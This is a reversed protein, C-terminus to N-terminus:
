FHKIDESERRLDVNHQSERRYQKPTLGLHKKFTTSFYQQSNMGIYHPLDTISIDTRKLLEKAKKMRHTVLYENISQSMSEKFVRHLYGPHLHVSDAIEKIRVDRDYNQHIYEIAKKVYAHHDPEKDRQKALEAVRILLQSMLLQVMFDSETEARDLELILTKLCHHIDNSDRLVMYPNQDATTQMLAKNEKCIHAFSPFSTNLSQFIFEINAMRCREDTQVILKHVVYSDIFIFQGKKLRHVDDDIEVSCSGSIVYMIEIAEHAHPVMSFPGWEKFYYFRVVPWYHGNQFHHDYFSM